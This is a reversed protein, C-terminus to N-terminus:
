KLAGGTIIVGLICFVTAFIYSVIKHGLKQAAMASITSSIACLCVIIILLINM